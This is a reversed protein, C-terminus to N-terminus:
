CSQVISCARAKLKLDSSGASLPRIDNYTLTIAQSDVASLRLSTMEVSYIDLNHTDYLMVDRFVQCAMVNSVALYPPGLLTHFSPPGKVYLISSM